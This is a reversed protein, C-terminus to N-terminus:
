QGEAANQATKAVGYKALFKALPSAADAARIGLGWAAPSMAPLLALAGPHGSALAGAAENAALVPRLVNTTGGKNQPLINGFAARAKSEFNDARLGGYEPYTQELAGDVMSKGQSISGSAAAMQAQPDGYKAALKLRSAAQSAVYLEQPDVPQGQSVKNAAGLTLGELEGSSATARNGAVLEQQLGRLGTYRQFSQYARGMDAPSPARNLISPDNLVAEGYKEPVGSAINIVGAGVKAAGPRLASLVAGAQQGIVEGGVGALGSKAIAGANGLATDNAPDNKGTLYQIVKKYGEGGAAGIGAGAIAGPVAGVGGVAAGATGGM